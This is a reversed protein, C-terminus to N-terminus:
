RRQRNLSSLATEVFEGGRVTNASFPVEKSAKAMFAEIDAISRPLNKTMWEVGTDTVLMDDEIRVGINKYKEFAPRVKEKFAKNEPTDALNDFTDERIYIGPENTFVMGAKFPVSYSGVDHVNMGLWHGLGHFYWNRYQNSKPDTVLGLKFLGESIVAAAAQSIQQMTAGPKTAKAAAEQADYVIQYIEAQEKTFKGNAPFTRTVDATYHEYEAGVDLLMLDGKKIGGQSEVYHLTTANSGCAVISPYGWSDANRRRYTYEVEAHVQYEWEARGITAMARMHAETTIDIAHQLMKLEYPSKIHRLGAFIPQANEVKNETEAKSFENEVRFERKGNEDRDNEPLLLYVTAANGISVSNDKSTFAARNKVAELYAAKESSDVIQTVGSTQTAQEHTYMKGEWAERIAVRKPLFLTETVKGGNKSLVLTAGEQKLATLYYFNNEQRFVYDVDNTYLKPEASFLIMVSNDAMKAAVAARRRALEAQREAISFRPAPPTQRMAPDALYSGALSQIPSVTLLIAFLILFSFAKM